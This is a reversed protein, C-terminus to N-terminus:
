IGEIITVIDLWNKITGVHLRDDIVAKISDWKLKTTVLEKISTVEELTPENSFGTIVWQKVLPRGVRKMAQLLGTSWGLTPGMQDLLLQREETHLVFGSNALASQTDSIEESLIKYFIDSSNSSRASIFSLRFEVYHELSLASKLIAMTIPEARITEVDSLLFSLIDEPSRSWDLNYTQM